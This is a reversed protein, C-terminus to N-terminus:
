DSVSERVYPSSSVAPITKPLSSPSEACGKSPPSRKGQMVPYPNNGANTGGPPAKLKRPDIDPGLFKAISRFPDNLSQGLTDLPEEVVPTPLAPAPIDRQVGLPEGSYSFSRELGPVSTSPPTIARRDFGAAMLGAKLSRNSASDDQGPKREFIARQLDKQKPTAVRQQSISSFGDSFSISHRLPPREPVPQAVQGM